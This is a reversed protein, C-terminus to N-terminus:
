TIPKSEYQAMDAMDTLGSEGEEIYEIAEKETNFTEDDDPHRHERVTFKEGEKYITWDGFGHQFRKIMKDNVTVWTGDCGYATMANKVYLITNREDHFDIIQCYGGKTWDFVQFFEIQTNEPLHIIYRRISWSYRGAKFQIVSIDTSIEKADVNRWEFNDISDAMM